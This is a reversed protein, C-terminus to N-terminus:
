AARDFQGARRLTKFRAFQQAGIVGPRQAAFLAIPQMIAGVERGNHAIAYLDSVPFSRYPLVSPWNM